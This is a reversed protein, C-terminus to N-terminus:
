NPRKTPNKAYYLLKPAFEFFTSQATTLSQTKSLLLNGMEAAQYLDRIPDFKKKAPLWHTSPTHTQTTAWDIPENNLLQPKGLFTQTM